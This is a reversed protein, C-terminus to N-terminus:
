TKNYTMQSAYQLVLYVAAKCSCRPEHTCSKFIRFRYILESIYSGSHLAYVYGPSSKLLCHQSMVWSKQLFSKYKSATLIVRSLALRTNCITAALIINVIKNGQKSDSVRHLHPPRYALTLKSLSVQYTPYAHEKCTQVGPPLPGCAIGGTHKVSGDCFVWSLSRGPHGADRRDSSRTLQSIWNAAAM